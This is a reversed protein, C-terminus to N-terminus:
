VPRPKAHQSPGEGEGVDRLGMEKKQSIPGRRIPEGLDVSGCVRLISTSFINPTEGCLWTRYHHNSLSDGSRAGEVLCGMWGHGLRGYFFCFDAMREYKLEVWTPEAYPMICLPKGVLSDKLSISGLRVEEDDTMVVVEEDDTIGMASWQQCFEEMSLWAELRSVCPCFM